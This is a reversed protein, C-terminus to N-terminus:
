AMRRLAARATTLSTGLITDDGEDAAGWTARIAYVEEVRDPLTEGRAAARTQDRLSWERPRSITVIEGQLGLRSALAVLSAINTAM